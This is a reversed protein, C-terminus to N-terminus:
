CGVEDSGDLCDVEGDCVFSPPISDSGDACDFATPEACDEEDSGDDCDEIGDCVWAGLTVNSGDLCQFLSEGACAALCELFEFTVEAREGEEALETLDECSAGIYCAAVCADELSDPDCDDVTAGEIGANCEPGMDGVDGIIGNGNTDECDQIGDGNLDEWM